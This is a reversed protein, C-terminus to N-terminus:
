YLQVWVRQNGIGYNKVRVIAPTATTDTADTGTFIQFTQPVRGYSLLVTYGTPLFPNMDELQDLSTPSGDNLATILPMPVIGYPLQVSPAPTTVTGQDISRAIVIVPLLGLTQVLGASTTIRVELTFPMQLPGWSRRGGPQGYLAAILDITNLNLVGIRMTGSIAFSVTVACLKATNMGPINILGLTGLGVAVGTSWDTVWTPVAGSSDVFSLNIPEQNGLILQQLDSVPTLDSTSVVASNTKDLADVNIILDM